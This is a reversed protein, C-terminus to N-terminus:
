KKTKSKKQSVEVQRKEYIEQRLGQNVGRQHAYFKRLLSPDIKVGSTDFGITSGAM